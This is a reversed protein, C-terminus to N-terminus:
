KRPALHYTETLKDIIRDSLGNFNNQSIAEGILRHITEFCTMYEASKGSVTSFDIRWDVEEEASKVEDEEDFIALFAEAKQLLEEMQISNIPSEGPQFFSSHLFLGDIALKVEPRFEPQFLSGAKHLASFLGTNQAGRLFRILTRCFKRQEPTTM